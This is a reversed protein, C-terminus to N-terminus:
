LDSWVMIPPREVRMQPVPVIAPRLTGQRRTDVVQMRSTGRSVVADGARLEVHSIATGANKATTWLRIVRTQGVHLLGISYYLRQGRHHQLMGDLHMRIQVNRIPELGTNCVIFLTEVGSGSEARKPSRVQMALPLRVQPTQSSRSATSHQKPIQQRRDHSRTERDAATAVPQRVATTDQVSCGARVTSRGEVIGQREPIVQVRIVQAREPRLEPFKWRVIWPSDNASGGAPEGPPDADVLLVDAPLRHVLVVGNVVRDGTNEVRLTYELVAAVDVSSPVCQEITISAQAVRPLNDPLSAAREDFDELRHASLQLGGQREHDLQPLPERRRAPDYERWDDGSSPAQTPEPWATRAVIEFPSDDDPPQWVAEASKRFAPTKRDAGPESDSARAPQTRLVPRQMREAPPEHM